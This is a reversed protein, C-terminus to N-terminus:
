REWGSGSPPLFGISRQNAKWSKLDAEAHAINDDGGILVGAGPSRRLIDSTHAAFETMFRLKIDWKEGTVEGKPLYLSGVTLEPGAATPLDVELYRGQRDFEASGFGIRVATPAVRSLM